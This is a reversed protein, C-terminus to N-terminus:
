GLERAKELLWARDSLLPKKQIREILKASRKKDKLPSQSLQLLMNLFNLDMTRLNAAITKPATREVYKRFAFMKFHLLDSHMEYYIKLELLRIIHHYSTNSAADPLFNLADDYKKEAFLCNALNFRYFFQDKDGGIIKDKYQEIFAEAWVFAKVRIAIQVLNVYVNPSIEGNLFFMGRELNDKQIEHLLPTFELHGANILLSCANRLYTYFQTLTQFPLNANHHHLQQMLAQFEEILPVEKSLLNYVNNSIQLLVSGKLYADIDAEAIDLDPLNAVKKQV